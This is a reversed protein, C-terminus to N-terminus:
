ETVNSTKMATASHKKVAYKLKKYNKVNNRKESEKWGLISVIHEESVDTTVLAAGRWMKVKQQIQTKPIFCTNGFNSIDSICAVQLM